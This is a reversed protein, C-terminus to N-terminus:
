FASVCISLVLFCRCTNKRSVTARDGPGQEPTGHAPQAHALDQAFRPRTEWIRMTCRASRNTEWFRVLLSIAAVFMSVRGGWSGRNTHTCARYGVGCAQSFIVRQRFGTAELHQKKAKGEESINIISVLSSRSMWAGAHKLPCEPRHVTRAYRVTCYPLFVTFVDRNYYSDHRILVELVM